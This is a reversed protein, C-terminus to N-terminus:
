GNSGGYTVNMVIEINECRQLVRTLEKGMDVVVEEGNVEGVGSGEVVVEGEGEGGEMGVVCGEGGNKEEEESVVAVVVKGRNNEEMKVHTCVVIQNKGEGESGSGCECECECEEEGSGGGSVFEGMGVIGRERTEVKAEGKMDESLGEFSSFENWEMSEVSRWVVYLTNGEKSARNGKGEFTVDSMNIVLADSGIVVYVGGGYMASCNCFTSNVCVFSCGGVVCSNIASGNGDKLEVCEFMCGHININCGSASM